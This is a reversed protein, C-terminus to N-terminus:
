RVGQTAPTETPAPETRFLEQEPEVTGTLGKLPMEPRSQAPASSPFVVPTAWKALEALRGRARFATLADIQGEPMKVIAEYQEKAATAEGSSEALKGLGFRAQGAAPPVDAYTAVVKDYAQRTERTLVEVGNADLDARRRTLEEYASDGIQVNAWAALPRQSTEAALDRLQQRNRLPASQSDQGVLRSQAQVAVSLGFYRQWQGNRTAARQNIGWWILVAVVLVALAGGVVWNLNQQTYLWADKLRAALLNEHLDHRRTAKVDHRESSAAPPSLVSRSM